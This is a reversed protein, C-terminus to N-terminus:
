HKTDTELRWLCKLQLLARLYSALPLGRQAACHIDSLGRNFSRDKFYAKAGILFSM